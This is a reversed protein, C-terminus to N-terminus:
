KKGCVISLCSSIDESFGYYAESTCAKNIDVSKVIILYKERIWSYNVALLVSFIDDRGPKKFVMDLIRVPNGAFFYCHLIFPLFKALSLCHSKGLFM